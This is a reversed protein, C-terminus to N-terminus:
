PHAGRERSIRRNEPREALRLAEPDRVGAALEAVFSL